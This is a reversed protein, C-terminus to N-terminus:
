GTAVVMAKMVLVEGGSDAWQGNRWVVAQWSFPGEARKKAMWAPSKQGPETAMQGQHTLQNHYLKAAAIPNTHGQPGSGGRWCSQTGPYGEDGLKAGGASTHAYLHGPKTQLAVM